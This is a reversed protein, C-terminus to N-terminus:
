CQTIESQKVVERREIRRKSEQSRKRPDGTIAHDHKCLFTAAQSCLDYRELSGSKMPSENQTLKCTRKM